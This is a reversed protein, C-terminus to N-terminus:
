EGDENEQENEERSTDDGNDTTVSNTQRLCHDKMLAKVVGVKDWRKNEVSTDWLGLQKVRREELSRFADIEDGEDFM